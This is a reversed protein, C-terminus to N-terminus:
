NFSRDALLPPAALGRAGPPLDTEMRYMKLAINSNMQGFVPLCTFIRTKIAKDNSNSEFNSFMLTGNM